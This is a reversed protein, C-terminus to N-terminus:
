IQLCLCFKIYLVDYGKHYSSGVDSSKERKPDCNCKVVILIHLLSMVLIYCSKPLRNNLLEATSIM